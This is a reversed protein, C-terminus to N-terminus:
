ERAYGILPKKKRGLLILLAGVIGFALWTPNDLVADSAPKWIWDPVHQAGLRLFSELSTQHLNIWDNRLTEYFVKSGAITKTGDRILAVFGVALCLLGIFRLLGRIM